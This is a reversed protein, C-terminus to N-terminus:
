VGHRAKTVSEKLVRSIRRAEPESLEPYLPLSVFNAMADDTNAFNGKVSFLDHLAMPGVPFCFVIESKAAHDIVHNLDDVRLIFRFHYTDEAYMAAPIECGSLDELEELYIKALRARKTLFDELRGWQSLALSAQIDTYPMWVAPEALDYPADRLSCLRNYTQEDDTLVMGGTGGTLLKTASFSLIRFPPKPERSWVKEPVLRQACDEIVMLGAELFKEVETRIGFMHPVIVTAVNARLAEEPSISFSNEKLDLLQPDCGALVTADYM